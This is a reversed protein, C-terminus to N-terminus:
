VCEFVYLVVHVCLFLYVLVCLNGGQSSHQWSVQCDDQVQDQMLHLFTLIRLVIRAKKDLNKCIIVVKAINRSCSIAM